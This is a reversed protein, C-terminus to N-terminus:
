AQQLALVLTAALVGAAGLPLLRRVELRPADPGALEAALMTAVSGQPTALSGVALGISAAYASPGAGLLSAASISVPLNNALAAACGVLLAVALLGALAGQGPSPPTLDLSGVLVLLGTVQVGLRVPIAPPTRTGPRVALAVAAVGAFPWCVPVSALPAIFAILAAAGLTAAAHREERTLGGRSRLAAMRYRGSLARREILATAAACTIAAVLGPLLMQELFAGPSLGLQEIVVLNTPNGQPVAISAANAVAVTGLFLPALPAGHRRSLALVLPLMLVVAGDLSVVSTAIATAGCVLLFLVASRGRGIAALRDAGREALGSREALAALTLAAALFVLLPLVAQLAPMLPAGLVVDIAALLAVVVASAPDAPRLAIAGIGLLALILSLM